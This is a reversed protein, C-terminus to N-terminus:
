QATKSDLWGAVLQGCAEVVKQGSEFLFRNPERFWHDVCMAIGMGETDVFRQHSRLTPSRDLVKGANLREAVLIGMPDMYFHVGFIRIHELEPLNNNFFVTDLVSSSIM